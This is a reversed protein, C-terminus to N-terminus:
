PSAPVCMAAPSTYRAVDGKSGSAALRYIACLALRTGPFTVVLVGRAGTTGAKRWRRGSTVSVTVREHPKFGGIRVTIPARDTLQLTPTAVLM